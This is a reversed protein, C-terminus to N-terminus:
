MSYLLNDLFKAGGSPYVNSRLLMCHFLFFVDNFFVSERDGVDGKLSAQRKRDGVGALM